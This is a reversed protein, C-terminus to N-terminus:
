KEFLALTKKLSIPIFPNLSDMLEKKSYKQSKAIKFPIGIKQSVYWADFLDRPEHRKDILVLKDKLIQNLSFVNGIVEINNFSSTLLHLEHEVQKIEKNIEIKVGISIPKFNVAFMIKAFLTHKKDYVEKIKSDLVRNVIKKIVLEFDKFAVPKLLSFDLDESFRFSKYALRLATGGKFVLDKSFISSFLLELLYMQFHEKLINDTTTQEKDAFKQAQEQTLM